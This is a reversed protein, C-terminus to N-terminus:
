RPARRLLLELVEDDTTQAFDEYWSGVAGLEVPVVLFATADAVGALRRATAAACVPAALVLSAPESTRLARLAVEATVGTALGDDVVVVDKGALDPLPRGGRFRAVRRDVEGRAHRILWALQEEGVGLEHVLGTVIAGPFGEAVAGIGLEPQGPAGVKCAVFVDYPAGCWRAVEVAVPLGGRALGLVLPNGLALEGVHHALLRGAAARDAFRRM